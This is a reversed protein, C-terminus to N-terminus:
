KLVVMRRVEGFTGASVKYFYLGSNLRSADLVVSKFGPEQREDVLTAVEQGSVSYLKVVVHGAVPLQYRIATEARAPNPYNQHLAYQAPVTPGSGAEAEQSRASNAHASLVSAGGTQKTFYTLPNETQQDDPYVIMANGDLYVTTSAYEALDRTGEECGTGNVCIPGTHFVDTAANQTVTPNKAFANQIQAFYVKWQAEAALASNSSTAWWTVDIKGPDGADVWPALATKTELGNNVRLPITWTAGQDASSALYVNTGDSYVVHLNGGRDIALIPFVNAYSLGEAGQHVLKLIFSRGGDTSRAVYISNGPHGVFVTYVDGNRQDVAINGQFDPQVGVEPTTVQTVQPFTVGGDTSKLVFISTTGALLAGLQKFTLYVVSDGTVAIWQRDVMPIDQSMPNVVWTAGGNSSSCMTVTMPLRVGFLSCVYVRGNSGVAIDQDGGGAGPTRGVTASAAQAGDPQGLYTFTNGGDISKWVDTGAPTGQIAAVYINGLPDYAARPELDQVGFVVGDPGLLAQPQSFTFRGQKYKAGRVQDPLPPGLTAAGSYRANVTAFAVIQIRYTGSPPQDLNVDEFKTNGQTGSNVLDGNGDYVYVDFDNVDDFLTDWAVHVHVEFSPNATYFSPPVDVTLTFDDCTLSTCLAPDATVATFPGGTWTVSPNDTSITGERIDGQTAQALPVAASANVLGNGYEPDFGPLGLDTATSNLINRVQGNSLQPNAGKVLAGVAAVHPSAMSTGQFKAFDSLYNLVTVTPSGAAVLTQGDAQSLSVAPVWDRNRADDRATGLTGNFNGTANNYIIVAIAGADQAKQVKSAFSSDGREILAIRGSVQAPFDAPSLGRGCHIAQATTGGAPTLAAFELPNAELSSTGFVVNSERGAGRPVTSRVDVGPAVLELDPGFDSFAARVRDRGVAGIAMVGQYAAPYNIQPTGTGNVGNGAAAVSLLGANSANLFVQEGTPDYVRGGLSMNAVHIGHQLCWDIAAYVDSFFGSGADSLVKLAYLEVEHSVGMLGTGNLEAAITGSVHTGHSHGDWPYPNKAVFNYGGRYRGDLEYHLSDIGTDLVAVKVTRGTTTAWVLPAQVAEVGWPTTEGETLSYATGRLSVTGPWSTYSNYFLLTGLQPGSASPLFTVNFTQSSSPAITANTPTVSYAANTSQVSSVVLSTSGPNSVTVPLSKSSGLTLSGFDLNKPSVPFAVVTYSRGGGSNPARDIQVLAGGTTTTGALQQTQAFPSSLVDGSSPPGNQNPAGVFKSSSNIIKIIGQSPLIQGGDATGGTTSTTGSIFGWQFVPPGTEPTRMQVFYQDPAAHGPQQLSFVFKWIANPNLGEGTTPNAGSLDRVKVFFQLRDDDLQQIWAALIDQTANGALSQDNSADSIEPNGEDGLAYAAKDQDVYQVRQDQRIADIIATNPAYIAFAPVVSYSWIITAGQATVMDREAQGPPSAFMVFYRGTVDPASPALASPGGLLVGDQVREAPSPRPTFVLAVVLLLLRYSM